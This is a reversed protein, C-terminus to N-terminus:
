NAILRRFFLYLSFAYSFYNKFHIFLLLINKHIRRFMVIVPQKSQSAHRRRADGAPRIKHCM